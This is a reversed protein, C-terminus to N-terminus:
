SNARVRPLRVASLLGFALIWWCVVSLLSAWGFFVEPGGATMSGPLLRAVLVGPYNVAWDLWEPGPHTFALLAALVAVGSAFGVRVLWARGRPTMM